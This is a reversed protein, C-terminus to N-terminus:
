KDNIYYYIVFDIKTKKMKSNKIKHIENIKKKVIKIMNLM